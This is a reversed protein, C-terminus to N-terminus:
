STWWEHLPIRRGTDGDYAVLCVVPAGSLAATDAGANAMAELTGDTTPTLLQAFILRQDPVTYCHLVVGGPALDPEISAPGPHIMM